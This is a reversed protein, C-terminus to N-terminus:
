AADRLGARLDVGPPKPAARPVPLPFVGPPGERRLKGAECRVWALFGEILHPNGRKPSALADPSQWSSYPSPSCCAESPQQAQPMQRSTLARGVVAKGFVLFSHCPAPQYRRAPPLPLEALGCARGWDVLNRAATTVGESESTVQTSTGPSSRLRSRPSGSGCQAARRASCGIAPFPRRGALPRARQVPEPRADRRAGHSDAAARDRRLRRISTAM